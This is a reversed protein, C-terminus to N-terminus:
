RRARFGPAAVDYLRPDFEGVFAEGVILAGFQPLDDVAALTTQFHQHLIKGASSSRMSQSIPFL